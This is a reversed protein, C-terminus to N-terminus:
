VPSDAEIRQGETVGKLPEPDRKRNIVVVDSICEVLAVEPKPEEAEAEGGSGGKKGESSPKPERRPRVLKVTQDLYTRMVDRCDISSDETEAHVDKYFE